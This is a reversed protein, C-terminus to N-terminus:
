NENVFGWFFKRLPADVVSKRIGEYFRAMLKQVGEGGKKAAMLM